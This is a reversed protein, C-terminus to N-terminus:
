LFFVDSGMPVVEARATGAPPQTNKKHILGYIIVADEKQLNRKM